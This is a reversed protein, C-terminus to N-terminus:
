VWEPILTLLWKKATTAAFQIRVRVMMAVGRTLRWVFERVPVARVERVERLKPLFTAAVAIRAISSALFVGYLATVWTFHMGALDFESPMVVALAGGLLAGVSAGVATLINHFATYQSRKEGPVADFLYNTAALSFGSWFSGSIMQVGIIFWFSTSVLWLSPFVTILTGTLVLVIRSGYVDCIRGWTHLAAFHFLVSTATVVMFELYTFHLDRLMYVTFFPAASSVAAQMCGHGLSFRVAQSHKFRRVWAKLDLAPSINEPARPPEHMRRLHHVSVMRAAAAIAFILAYGFWTQGHADFQHLVLGALTLSIFSTVTAYRTRLGFYRGRKRRPVLDGMLSSWQPSVLNGAATHLVVLVIFITVGHEPFLWPLVLMPAWFLCQTKAGFLITSKRSGVMGRLWVSCLQACAGLLPPISALWAIQATTAKLFLAFATFYSEGAGSMVSWAVADRISRNLSKEVVPDKSFPRRM